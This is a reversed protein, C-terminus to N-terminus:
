RRCFPLATKLNATVWIASHMVTRRLRWRSVGSSMAITMGCWALWRMRSAVASRSPKGSPAHRRHDRAVAVRGRRRQREGQVVHHAIPPTLRPSRTIKTATPAPKVTPAVRSRQCYYAHRAARIRARVM